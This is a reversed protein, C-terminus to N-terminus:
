SRRNAPYGLDSAKAREHSSWLQRRDRWSSWNCDFFPYVVFHGQSQNFLQLCFPSHTCHGCFGQSLKRSCRAMLHPIAVILLCLLGSFPQLQHHARCDLIIHYLASNSSTQVHHLHFRSSLSLLSSIIVFSLEFVVMMQAIAALREKPDIKIKMTFKRQLRVREIIMFYYILIM